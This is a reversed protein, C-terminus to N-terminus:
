VVKGKISLGVEHWQDNNFKKRYVEFARGSRCRRAFALQGKRLYASVMDALDPNEALFILGSASHSRFEIHLSHSCVAVLCDAAFCGSMSAKM